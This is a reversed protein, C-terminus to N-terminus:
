ITTNYVTYVIYNYQICYISYLIYQICYISYLQISQNIHACLGIIIWNRLLFFSFLPTCHEVIRLWHNLTFKSTYRYIEIRIKRSFHNFSFFSHCEAAREVVQLTVRLIQCLFIHSKRKTTEIKLRVASTIEFSVRYM